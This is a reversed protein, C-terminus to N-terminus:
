FLGLFKRDNLIVEKAQPVRMLAALAAITVAAGILTNKNIIKM